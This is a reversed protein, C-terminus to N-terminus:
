IWRWRPEVEVYEFGTYSVTFDGVPFIPYGGEISSSFNSMGWYCLERESDITMHSSITNLRFARSGNIFFEGARGHVTILPLSELNGYNNMLLTQEPTDFHFVPPIAEFGYPQVEWSVTFRRRKGLWRSLEIPNVIRAKYKREPEDGFIIWDAGRFYERLTDLRSLDEIVFEASYLFSDYCGESIFVTGSRGPIVVSEGREAPLPKPPASTCYLGMDRCDRQKWVIYNRSRIM